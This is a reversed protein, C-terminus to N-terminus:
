VVYLKLIADGSSQDGGLRLTEGEETIQPYYYQYNSMEFLQHILQHNKVLLTPYFKFHLYISAYM